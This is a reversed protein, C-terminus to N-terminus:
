ELERIKINRFYAKGPHDQLCISGQKYNAFDYWRKDGLYEYDESRNFKSKKMKENWKEGSLPFENILQDNLKVLGINKKQDIKIYYTNWHGAPNPNPEKIPSFLDYVAGLYHKKQELDTLINNLEIDGGMITEPAQYSAIDIIQIEPGTQYPFKYMTDERVGWMFGSNGGEEIKWDFYIEFSTYMKDSVLSADEEGSELGSLKDFILVENEVKWGKKSGSDQFIHWGELSNNKILYNWQPDTDACSQFIFFTFLTFLIKKM